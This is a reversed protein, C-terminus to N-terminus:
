DREDFVCEEFIDDDCEYRQLEEASNANYCLACRLVCGTEEFHGWALLEEDNIDSSNWVEGCSLCEIKGGVRMSM